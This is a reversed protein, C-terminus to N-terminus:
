YSLSFNWLGACIAIVDDEFNVKYNRFRHVLINYRKLGCIANEVVIRVQSLAKNAAKQDATLQPEPNKKSKRPKKFPIEIQDGEYDSLIGLYGLDVWVMLDAFWNLDPPLEEKLMKYDHTRGSFTHGLFIVFKDLTSM